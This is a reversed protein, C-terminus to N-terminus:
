QSYDKRVVEGANKWTKITPENYVAHLEKGKKQIVARLQPKNACTAM